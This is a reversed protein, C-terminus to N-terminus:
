RFKGVDAPSGGATRLPKVFTSTSGPRFFVTEMVRERYSRLMQSVTACPQRRGSPVIPTETPVLELFMLNVPFIGFYIIGDKSPYV